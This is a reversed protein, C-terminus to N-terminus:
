RAPSSLCRESVFWYSAGFAIGSIVFSPGQRVAAILAGELFTQDEMWVPKPSISTMACGIVFVLLAGVVPFYIGGLWRLKRHAWVALGWPFVLLVLMVAFGGTLWFFVSFAVSFGLGTDAGRPPQRITDVLLWGVYILSAVIGGVIYGVARQVLDNLGRKSM